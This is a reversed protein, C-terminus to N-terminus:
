LVKKGCLTVRGRGWGGGGMSIRSLPEERMLAMLVEWGLM